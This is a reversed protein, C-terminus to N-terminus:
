MSLKRKLRPRATSQETTPAGLRHETIFIVLGAKLENFLMLLTVFYQKDSRVIVVHDDHHGDGIVNVFTQRHKTTLVGSLPM